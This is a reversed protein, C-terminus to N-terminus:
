ELLRTANNSLVHVVRFRFPQFRQLVGYGRLIQLHHDLGLRVTKDRPFIVTWPRFVALVLFGISSLGHLELFNLSNGPFSNIRVM